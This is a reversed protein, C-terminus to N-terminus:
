CIVICRTPPYWIVFLHKSMPPSLVVVHDIVSCTHGLLVEVSDESVRRTHDFLIDICDEEVDLFEEM